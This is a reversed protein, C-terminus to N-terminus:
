QPKYNFLAKCTTTGCRMCVNGIGKALGLRSEEALYKSKLVDCIYTAMRSVGHYKKGSPPNIEANDLRQYLDIYFELNHIHNPNDIQIGCYEEACGFLNYCEETCCTNEFYTELFRFQKKVLHRHKKDFNRAHKNLFQVLAMTDHIITSDCCDLPGYKEVAWKCFKYSIKNSLSREMELPYTLLM